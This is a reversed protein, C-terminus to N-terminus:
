KTGLEVHTLTEWNTLWGASGGIDSAFLSPIPAHYKWLRPNDPDKGAEKPQVPKTADVGGQRLIQIVKLTNPLQMGSRNVYHNYAIEWTRVLGYPVLKATMSPPPPEGLRLKSHTEMFTTLREAQAGYVDVGQHWAMEAANVESAFSQEVHGLDRATEATYGPLYTVPSGAWVIGPDRQAVSKRMYTIDDGFKGRRKNENWNQKALDIWSTWDKPFTPENLKLLFADSPTNEPTWFDPLAPAAGDSAVYHYAPIYSMWHDIGEYFAATDQNYVGIAVLATVGAFERNGFAVRNHIPPLLVDNFWKGVARHNEWEPYTARLMEASLPFVSGAWAAELYWNKGEHTTVTKAYLDLIGAANQAYTSDGTFFWMLTQTYAAVADRMEQISGHDNAGSFDCSIVVPPVAMKELYHPSAYRSQKMQSFQTAWPEEGAAIRSKVFALEDLNNLLAAHKFDFQVLVEVSAGDTDKPKLAILQAFNYQENGVKVKFPQM